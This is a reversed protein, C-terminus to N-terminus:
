SLPSAKRNYGHIVKLSDPTLYDEPTIVETSGPMEIPMMTISVEQNYRPQIKITTDEYYEKSVTL